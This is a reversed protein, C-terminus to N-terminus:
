MPTHRDALILRCPPPVLAAVCLTAKSVSLRFCAGRLNCQISAASQRPKLPSVFSLWREILAPARRNKSRPFPRVDISPRHMEDFLEISNYEATPAQNAISRAQVLRPPSPSATKPRGLPPEGLSTKVPEPRWWTWRGGAFIARWWDVSEARNMKNVFESIQTYLEGSIVEGAARSTRHLSLHAPLITASPLLVGLPLANRV